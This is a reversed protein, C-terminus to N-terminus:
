PLIRIFWERVKRSWEAISKIEDAYAYMWEVRVVPRGDRGEVDFGELGFEKQRDCVYPRVLSRFPLSLTTAEKVFGNLMPEDLPSEDESM